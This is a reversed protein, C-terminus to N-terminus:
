RGEDPLEEPWLRAAHIVRLIRVTDGIIRYPLIYPTRGIVLERTGDVRGPRGSESFAILREAAKAIWDDVLGAAHPSDLEIYDFIADRDPIAAPLWELKM